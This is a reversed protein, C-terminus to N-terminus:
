FTVQNGPIIYNHEITSDIKTTLALISEAIM